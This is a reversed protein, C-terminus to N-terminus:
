REDPHSLRGDAFRPLDDDIALWSLASHTWQHARPKVSEPDDLSGHAVSVYPGGDEVFFLPSGCTGCFHSTGVESSRFSKPEGKLLSFTEKRVVVSLFVPGGTRRRCKRCHCYVVDFIRDIRHRIAGCLCGGEIPETM